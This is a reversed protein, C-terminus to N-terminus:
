AHFPLRADRAKELGHAHVGLNAQDHVLDVDENPAVLMVQHVLGSLLLPQVPHAAALEVDDDETRRAPGPAACVPCVIGTRLGAPVTLVGPAQRSLQDMLALPCLVTVSEDVNGDPANFCGLRCLGLAKLDGTQEFMRLVKAHSVSAFRRADPLKVVDALGELIGLERSHCPMLALIRVGVPLFRSPQQAIEIVDALKAMGSPRLEVGASPIHTRKGVVTAVIMLLLHNAAVGFSAKM